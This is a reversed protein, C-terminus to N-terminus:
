WAGDEGTLADTLRVMTPGTRDHPVINAVFQNKSANAETLKLAYAEMKGDKFLAQAQAYNVFSDTYSRMPVPLEDTDNVMTTGFRDFVIRATGGQEEPKIIFTTGGLWAHYPHSSSFIEDPVFGNISMKTSQFFDQGNYTVWLRRVQGTFDATSVTGLGATGFAVAVTGLAYDDNVSRVANDLIFKWENIWDDITRDDKIYASSWMKKKTRERLSALAYFSFGEPTIWDSQSTNSGLVSNRFRARFADASTAAPDDFQTITGDAQYGVTGDTIPTATGATGSTSKEFIVQNFKIQYIPTDAPHPFALAPHTFSTGSAATGIVVETQEEGAEGYQLAYSNTFGATNKAPTTTAGASVADSVFTKLADLHLDNKLIIKM